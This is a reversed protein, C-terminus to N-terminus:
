ATVDQQFRLNVTALSAGANTLFLKTVDITLPNPLGCSTHWVIPIGATLTLTNVPVTASNTELTITQDSLLFMGSMKSVDLAIDVEKDVQGATVTTDVDIAGDETISTYGSLTDSGRSWSQTYQQTPM